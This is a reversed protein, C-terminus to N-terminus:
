IIGFMVALDYGFLLCALVVIIISIIYMANVKDKFVNKDTNDVCQNRTFITFISLVFATIILIMNVKGRVNKASGLFDGSTYAM